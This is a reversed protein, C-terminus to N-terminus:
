SRSPAACAPAARRRRHELHAEAVGADADRAGLQLVQEDREERRLVLAGPEPQRDALADDLVVAAGDLHAAADAAARRERHHQRHELLRLFRRLALRLRPRALVSGPRSSCKPACTGGGTGNPACSSSGPLDSPECLSDEFGPNCTGGFSRTVQCTTNTGADSNDAVCVNQQTESACHPSASDCAQGDATWAACKGANCYFGVKCDTDIGCDSNASGFSQCTAKTQTGVQLCLSKDACQENIFATPGTNNPDCDAGAALKTECTGSTPLMCFGATTNCYGSSNVCPSNDTCATTSQTYHLQCYMGTGCAPTPTLDGQFPDCAGHLASQTSPVVCTPSMSFTPCMLGFQCTQGTGAGLSNACAQNLPALKTCGNTPDCFSDSGCEADLRCPAATAKVNACVGPCGTVQSAIGADSGAHQCFGSTCEADAVCAGGNAVHGTYLFQECRSTWAGVDSFDCRATQVAALCQLENIEVRGKTIEVDQDWGTHHLNNEICAAMQTSDLEGCAMYHACIAQAFDQAFMTFTVLHKSDNPISMDLDVALDVVSMSMDDPPPLGHDGCGGLALAVASLLLTGRM